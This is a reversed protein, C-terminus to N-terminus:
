LVIDDLDEANEATRSSSFMLAFRMLTITLQCARRRFYCQPGGSAKIRRDALDV